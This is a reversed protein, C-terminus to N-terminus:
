VMSNLKKHLGIIGYVFKKIQSKRIVATAQLVV